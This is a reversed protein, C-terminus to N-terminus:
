VYASKATENSGPGSPPRLYGGRTMAPKLSKRFSGSPCLPPLSAQTRKKSGEDVYPAHQNFPACQLPESSWTYRWSAYARQTAQGPEPDVCGELRVLLEPLLPVVEVPWRPFDATAHSKDRCGLSLSCVGQSIIGFIGRSSNGWCLVEGCIGLGSADLIIIM